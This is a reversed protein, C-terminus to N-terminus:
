LRMELRSKWLLQLQECRALPRRQQRLGARRSRLKQRLQLKKHLPRKQQRRPPWHKLRQQRRLRQKQPSTRWPAGSCSSPRKSHVAALAALWIM